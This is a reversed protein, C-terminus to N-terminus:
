RSRSITEEVVASVHGSKRDALFIVLRLPTASHAELDPLSLSLQKGLPADGGAKARGFNKLSRVVAVHRLTHGGNEGRLVSVQEADEALAAFLNADPAAPGNVSFQMATGTWQASTITLATKPQTIAQRIALGMKRADSGTLQADGDVVAQPTYIDELHFRSGYQQQRETMADMSFPDKWGLRDWYTVHESLVIAHVGPIPQRDLRALLDDAPPCSSCGESTFLEILVPVGNGSTDAAAVTAPHCLSWATGALLLAGAFISLVGTTKNILPRM